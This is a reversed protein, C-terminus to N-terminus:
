IHVCFLNRQGKNTSVSFVSSIVRTMTAIVTNTVMLTITNINIFSNVNECIYFYFSNLFCNCNFNLYFIVHLPMSVAVCKIPVGGLFCTKKESVFKCRNTKWPFEWVIEIWGFSFDYRLICWVLWWVNNDRCMNERWESGFNILENIDDM